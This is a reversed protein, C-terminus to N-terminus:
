FVCINNFKCFMAIQSSSDALSETFQVRQAAFKATSWSIYFFYVFLIRM